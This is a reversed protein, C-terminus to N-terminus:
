NFKYSLYGEADAGIPPSNYFYFAILDGQNISVTHVLDSYTGIYGSSLTVTIATNVGNVNVAITLPTATNNSYINLYFNSITASIPSVFQKNLLTTSGATFGFPATYYTASGFIIEFHSALVSKASSGGSSPQYSPAMGAGNSTLIQGATGTTTTSLKTGDFYITGDTTALSTANSGGEAIPM